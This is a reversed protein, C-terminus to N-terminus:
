AWGGTSSWRNDAILKSSESVFVMDGQALAGDLPRHWLALIDYCRYGRDKMYPIIDGILPNGTQFPIFSVELIVVEARSLCEVAGDLCQLEAGQLDLKILDPQPFGMKAVLNDLTAIPYRVTRGFRDGTHNMLLSSQYGAENFEVSGETAGVLTQAVQIGGLEADLAKLPAQMEERPEICLVSADPYVAKLERAWSGSAAGGDVAAKVQFGRNRLRQLKYESVDFQGPPRSVVMGRDLLWRKVISRLASM